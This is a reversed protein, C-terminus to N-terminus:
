SIDEMVVLILLWLSHLVSNQILRIIEWSILLVWQLQLFVIPIGMLIVIIMMPVEMVRRLCMSQALDTEATKLVMKLLM